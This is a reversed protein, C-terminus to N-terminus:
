AMIKMWQSGLKVDIESHGLIGCVFCLLSLNEYKFNIIYWEDGKNKAKTKKKLPQRVNINVRLRMHQRWFSTHDNKDFEVFVGIYNAM